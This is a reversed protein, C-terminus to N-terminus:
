PTAGCSTTTPTAPPSRAASRGRVLAPRADAVRDPRPRGPGPQRRDLLALVEDLSGHQSIHTWSGDDLATPADVVVLEGPPAFAVLEGRRTVHVPFYSWPGPAPFYFAYEFSWTAYPDLDAHVTRTPLAGGVAIAGRPIQVLM